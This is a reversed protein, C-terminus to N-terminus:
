AHGRPPADLGVLGRGLGPFSDYGARVWGDTSAYLRFCDRVVHREFRRNERRLLGGLMRGWRRRPALEGLIWRRTFPAATIFSAAHHRRAFEDLAAIFARYLDLYGGMNLARWRFFDLYVHPTIHDDLAARAAALLTQEEGPTLAGKRGYPVGPNALWAILQRRRWGLVGAALGLTVLGAAALFRRRSWGSV